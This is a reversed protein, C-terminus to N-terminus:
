SLFQSFVQKKLEEINIDPKPKEYDPKEDEPIVDEDNEEWEEFLKEIDADNFDRVDKKKKPKSNDVCIASVIILQIIFIKLLWGM